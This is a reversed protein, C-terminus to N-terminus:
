NVNKVFGSFALSAGAHPTPAARIASFSIMM